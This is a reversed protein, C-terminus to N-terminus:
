CIRRPTTKGLLDLGNRRMRLAFQSTATMKPNRKTCQVFFMRSMRKGHILRKLNFIKLMNIPLAASEPGSILASRQKKVIAATQKALYGELDFLRMGGPTRVTDILGKQDWSRLVRISVGLREAAAGAKVLNTIAAM